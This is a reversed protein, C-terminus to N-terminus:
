PGEIIVVERSEDTPEEVVKDASHYDSYQIHGKKFNYPEAAIENGWRDGYAYTFVIEEEGDFKQLEAILDRVRM